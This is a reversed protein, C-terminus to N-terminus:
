GVASISVCGAMCREVDHGDRRPRAHYVGSYRFVGAEDREYAVPHPSPDVACWAWAPPPAGPDLHPLNVNWFAGAPPAQTLLKALVPVAYATAQAWDLAVGRRLYHSMALAPVGLHGAERAAAATGSHYLDTGLNGGPNIGAVVWAADLRLGRLAIRVCDAPTGDLAWRDHGRPHLALPGRTTVRHGTGSADAQPAVVVLRAQPAAQALAAALAALGPADIGDDNTLVIIPASTAAHDTASM